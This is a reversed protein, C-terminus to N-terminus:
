QLLQMYFSAQDAAELRNIERAIKRGRRNGFAAMTEAYSPFDRNRQHPSNGAIRAESGLITMEGSDFVTKRISLGARAALLHIGKPTYLHLHRPADLQVWEGGYKRWAYSQALPIRLLICGGPALKGAMKSLEQEPNEMHELAHSCSILDFSRDVDEIEAAMLRLGAKDVSHSMFPDIGTLDAFAIEHLTKLWAGSGCGIDLIASNRNLPDGIEGKVLPQLLRMRHSRAYKALARGIVGTEFVEAANRMRRMIGKVGLAPEAQFSYYSNDYFDSLGTPIEIIDLTGCSSCESYDFYMRDDRFVPDGPVRVGKNRVNNLCGSCVTDVSGLDITWPAPLWCTVRKPVEQTNKLGDFDATTETKKL